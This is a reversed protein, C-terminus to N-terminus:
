PQKFAGNQLAIRLGAVDDGKNELTAEWVGANGQHSFVMVRVRGTLGFENFILVASQDALGVLVLEKNPVGPIIADTSVPEGANVMWLSQHTVASYDRKVAAPIQQVKRFIKFNGDLIKEAELTTLRPASEPLAPVKFTPAVDHTRYFTALLALLVCAASAPVILRRM